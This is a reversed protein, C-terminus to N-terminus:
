IEQRFLVTSARACPHLFVEEFGYQEGFRGALVIEEYVLRLNLDAIYEKDRAYLSGIWERYSEENEWLLSFYGEEM